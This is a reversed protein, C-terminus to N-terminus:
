ANRISQLTAVTAENLDLSVQELELYYNCNQGTEIDKCTIYIDQNFTETDFVIVSLLPYQINEHTAIYGAALLTQDSFDILATVPLPQKVKYIKMIFGHDYTGTAEAIMQFKVVRYGTKGDNTHLTIRQQTDDAMMGRFSKIMTAGEHCEM